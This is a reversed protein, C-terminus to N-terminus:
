KKVLPVFLIVNKQIVMSVTNKLRKVTQSDARRYQDWYRIANDDAYSALEINNM